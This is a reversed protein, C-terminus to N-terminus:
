MEMVAYDAPIEFLGADVSDSAKIIKMIIEEGEFAGIIYALEDGDFCMISAAGEVIWEETDYTQGAIERTGTKYDGMDVDAEDLVAGAITQTTTGLSMKIVMKGAHDITYMDEGDIISVGMSVGDLKSESYTKNGDTASIVTMKQGDIETEYEMYMRGDAFQNYFKGTKTALFGSLDVTDNTETNSIESQQQGRSDPTKSDDGGCAALSFTMILALLLVLLKKM